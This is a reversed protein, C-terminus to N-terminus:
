LQLILYISAFGLVYGAYIESSQHANLWLRATGVLGCLFLWLALLLRLDLHAKPTLIFLLALIGSCGIAHLSIKFYRNILAAVVLTSSISLLYVKLLPPTRLGLRYTFIYFTFLTFMSTLLLPMRRDEKEEMIFSNLRGQIKLASFSLMPLIFTGLAVLGIFYIRERLPIALYYVKDFYFIFFAGVSILLMPHFLVSVAWAWKNRMM